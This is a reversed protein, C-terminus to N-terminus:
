IKPRDFRVDRRWCGVRSLKVSNQFKACIEGVGVYFEATRWICFSEAEYFCFGGFKALM